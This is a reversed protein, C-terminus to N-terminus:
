LRVPLAKLGRLLIQDAWELTDPDVAFDINPFRKLLAPIAIQGELRALPASGAVM